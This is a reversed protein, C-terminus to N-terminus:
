LLHWDHSEGQGLSTREDLLFSHFTKNLSASLVNKYPLIANSMHYLVMLIALSFGNGGSCTSGKGILLLLYKIDVM